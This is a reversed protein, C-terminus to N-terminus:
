KILFDRDLSQMFTPLIFYIKLLDGAASNFGGSFTESSFSLPSACNDVPFDALSFHDQWEM